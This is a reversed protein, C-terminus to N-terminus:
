TTPGSKRVALYGGFMGASAAMLGHFVLLVPDAVEKGLALRILTVGVILVVYGAIAALSGHTLPSLPQRSAALRGGAALGALLLVYMPFSVSRDTLSRFAQAIAIAPAGVIVALRAGALVASRDVTLAM